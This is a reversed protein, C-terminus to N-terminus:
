FPPTPLVVVDMLTVAASARIPLFTRSTSVSGWAWLVIETVEPLEFHSFDSYSMMIFRLSFISSMMMGELMGPSSTAM